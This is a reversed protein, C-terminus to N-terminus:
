TKQKGGHTQMILLSLLHTELSARTGSLHSHYCPSTLAGCSVNVLMWLFQNFILYCRVEEHVAENGRHLEERQERQASMRLDLKDGAQGWGTIIELSNTGRVNTDPATLCSQDTERGSFFNELLSSLSGASAEISSRGQACPM